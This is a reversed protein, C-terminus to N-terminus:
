PGPAQDPGKALCGEGFVAEEMYYQAAQLEGAPLLPILLVLHSKACALHTRIWLSTLDERDM